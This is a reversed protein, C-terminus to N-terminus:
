GRIHTPRVPRGRGDAGISKSHTWLKTVTPWGSSPRFSMSTAQPQEHSLPDNVPSPRNEGTFGPARIIETRRFALMPPCMMVPFLSTPEEHHREAQEARSRSRGRRPSWSRPISAPSTSARATFESLPSPCGSQLAVCLLHGFFPGAISADGQTPRSPTPRQGEIGPRRSWPGLCHIFTPLSRERNRSLHGAHCSRWRRGPAPVPPKLNVV